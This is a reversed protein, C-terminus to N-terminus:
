EGVHKSITSDSVKEVAERSIDIGHMDGAFSKIYKIDDGTGLPAILISPKNSKVMQKM